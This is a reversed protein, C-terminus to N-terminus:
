LRTSLLEIPVGTAGEALYYQLLPTVTLTFAQQMTQAGDSVTVTITTTGSAGSLPTATLTRTIDRPACPL